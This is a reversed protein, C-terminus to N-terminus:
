TRCGPSHTHPASSNPPCQLSMLDRETRIHLQCTLRGNYHHSTENSAKISTQVAQRTKILSLAPASRTMVATLNQLRSQAYTSSVFETRIHLQRTLRGNYNSSTENSAKISTQVAQRTKILSLAPASRTMVATLNQLRSEAYTSSIHSASM